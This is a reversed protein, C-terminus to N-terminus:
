GFDRRMYMMMDNIWKNTEGEWEHTPYEYHCPFIKEIGWLNVISWHYEAGEHTDCLHCFTILGPRCFDCCNEGVFISQMNNIMFRKTVCVSSM